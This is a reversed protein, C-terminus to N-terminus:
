QQVEKILTVGLSSLYSYYDKNIENLKHQESNELYEKLTKTKSYAPMGLPYSSKVEERTYARNTNKM